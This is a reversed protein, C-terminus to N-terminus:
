GSQSVMVGFVGVGGCFGFWFDEIKRWDEDSEKEKVLSEAEVQGIDGVGIRLFGIVRFFDEGQKFGAEAETGMFREVVGFGGNGGTLLFKGIQGYRIGVLGDRNGGGIGVKPFFAGLHIVGERGNVFEIKGVGDVRKGFDDGQRGGVGFGVVEHSAEKLGGIECIFGTVKILLGDLKFGVVVVGVKSQAFDIKLLFVKRLGLRMKFRSQLNIGFVGSGLVIEVLDIRM